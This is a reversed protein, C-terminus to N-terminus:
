ATAMGHSPLPFMWMGLSKLYKQAILLEAHWFFIIQGKMHHVRIIHLHIRSPLADRTILNCTSLALYLYLCDGFHMIIQDRFDRARTTQSANSWMSKTSCISIHRLSDRAKVPFYTMLVPPPPQKPLPSFFHLHACIYTTPTIQATPISCVHM